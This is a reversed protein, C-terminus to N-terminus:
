EDEDPTSTLASAFLGTPVAIIGLGIILMVFTFIKGGVTIPYIDGYGVTTLTAVAWWLCHFVSKFQEPQAPNEFYYIGVASIFLLFCTAFLFLILEEKIQKFARGFRNIADSYRFLKLARFLRFLRFVRISRLDIGSSVYFPLIALLDVIGYFSFIFKLKRDSVILRLIYEFTFITITIIELIKLSKRLTENLDPITEISFSILSIIILAQITFDFIKASKTDNQEIINKIVKLIM